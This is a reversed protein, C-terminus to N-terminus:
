LGHDHNQPRFTLPSLGRPPSLAGVRRLPSSAEGCASLLLLYLLLLPLTYAVSSCPFLGLYVPGDEGTAGDGQDVEAREPDSRTTPDVNAGPCRALM